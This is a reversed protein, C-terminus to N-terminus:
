RPLAPSPKGGVDAAKSLHAAAAGTRAIKQWRLAVGALAIVVSKLLALYLLQRYMLQQLPLSWLPRMSERDLRFAVIAAICQLGLMGLWALATSLQGRVVVGYLTFLDVVPALIPLLVGFGAILPLGVLGCRGSAGHDHLARRHVWLAQMTGYSWRFRQRWLQRLNNPAETWARAKEEYVVRWGARIIAMTLDTDEALTRDSVGGVESLARRRFAGIAGPITPMCQLIEFFRRDLNFGIVYEIHQWKGILGNRNSVKVNGAVGGVRPDAFPQVLLRLSDPEFVTDGDVMVIIDHSAHAIGVNLANAKGGNPIRIIRVNPLALAAVIDASGDTSGDDVVIVEIEPYNGNAISLVAAEVNERENLIPMVVSVPQDVPPGWSWAPSRRRRVHRGALLFLGATRLVLLVGVLLVAIRIWEFLSDALRVSQMLLFGRLQESLTADAMVPAQAAAMLAESDFTADIAAPDVGALAQAARLGESATLFQYGREKLIPIVRDLAEVTKARDGGSDHLLVIGSEGDRPISAKVITEVDPADWDRSDVSSTVVVYGYRGAELVLPWTEDNLSDVGSSYPFRLLPTTVGAAAALAMQTQSYELARMWPPLQAMDPHTFTHVGVDHGQDIMDQVLGPYRAVETGVVFFTGTVGHKALVALVEPTWQPSPGDDFTLVVTKPPLEYSAVRGHTTDVYPGGTLIDVPVTKQDGTSAGGDPSFESDVYTSYTMLAAFTSLLLVV